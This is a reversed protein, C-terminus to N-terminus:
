TTQTERLEEMRNLVRLVLLPEGRVFQHSGDEPLFLDLGEPHGLVELLVEALDVGEEGIDLVERDEGM